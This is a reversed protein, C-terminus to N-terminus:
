QLMRPPIKIILEDLELDVIFILGPVDFLIGAYETTRKCEDIFVPLTPNNIGRRAMDASVSIVMHAIRFKIQDVYVTM